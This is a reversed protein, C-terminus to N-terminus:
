IKIERILIEKMEIMEQLESNLEKITRDNHKNIRILPVLSILLVFYPYYSKEIGLFTGTTNNTKLLLFFYVLATITTHAILNITNKRKFKGRDTTKNESIKLDLKTIYNDKIIQLRKKNYDRKKLIKAAVIRAEFSQIENGNFIRELESNTKSKYIEEWNYKM